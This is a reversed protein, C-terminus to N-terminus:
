LPSKTAQENQPEKVTEVLELITMEKAVVCQGYKTAMSLSGNVENLGIATVNKYSVKFVKCGWYKALEEADRLFFFIHYGSRYAKSNNSVLVTNSKDTNLKGIQYNTGYVPGNIWGAQRVGDVLIWDTDFVKYGTGSIDNDEDFKAEVTSLCM